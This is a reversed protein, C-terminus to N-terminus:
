ERRVLCEDHRGGEFGRGWVRFPVMMRVLWFYRILITRLDLLELFEKRAPGVVTRRILSKRIQMRM